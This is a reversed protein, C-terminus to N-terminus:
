RLRDNLAKIAKPDFKPKRDYTMLGNVEQEVDTIQTYCIGIFPLKAIAEYLGALRKLADEPTKEVGAYGWSGEPAKADPPIYAIGGFESLYLPAGNYVHGAAVYPRGNPPLAVGAKPEVKAWRGYLAEYNASYDHVAYLDTTDVHEWGENDIVPRSPDLSKTLHYLTRLHAQQRPDRLDPVGWSENLPAWMVLSPHNIDREVAETWERLFRLVYQEDYLYANAMEGSVLFGMRDAWYFFRPDEVKQHKRVGNFGMEKAMRIDYQIAEDSPPTLLSEPWYGQDLLFKLYIPRHNLCFRGNEISVERFGFYSNVTDLTKGDKRLEFIVDYLHPREVSWLRPNRVFAAADVYRGDALAGEGGAVTENGSRVIVRLTLGPQPRAVRGHFTVMGDLRPAIRVSELWSEGAAEVWVSQWIGSTRTYFIGRSKPEWYQKGRPISRDEPPDWARVVVTNAGPRLLGTIDFRFPTNGGEHEGATQGNVWVTAKYDVAGFHLLVRRGKWAAPVEFQRRYWVVPHFSTDGIGSRRSEFAFPVTITRTFPRETLHWGAALGEDRDDFAFQWPGNLTLWEPRQFQPQPHEPRPAPQAALNMTLTPILLALCLLRM